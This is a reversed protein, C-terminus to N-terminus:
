MDYCQYHPGASANYLYFLSQRIRYLKCCLAQLVPASDVSIGTGVILPAYECINLKYAVPGCCKLLDCM